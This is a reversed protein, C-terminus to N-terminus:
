IEKAINSVVKLQMKNCDDKSLMVYLLVRARSFMTYLIINQSSVNIQDNLDIAIVVKADLGKFSQITAFQISGHHTSGDVKRIVSNYKGNYSALVSKEMTVPSIITIDNMTIKNDFLGDLLFDFQNSFDSNEYPVFEVDDGEVLAKGSEINSSYKNFKAIQNTNRCNKTLKCKTPNNKCLEAMAKEFKNNFINQNPDYFVAWDGGYLGKSLLKDFIPLYRSSILDQGEDIVLVDYKECNRSSLYKFFMDPLTVSYYNADKSKSQDFPIYDSMLSHINKVNIKGSKISQSVHVALMKNYSLYLVRKGNNSRNLAYQMALITKGSGAPGSIIVKNNDEITDLVALQEETLRVLEKDVSDSVSGLTPVFHLDDRIAQKLQEIEDKTLKSNHRHNKDDWYKHCNEIFSDFSIGSSNDYKIDQIVSVGVYDFCIDTFVVGTAFSVQNTWSIMRSLSKRLAFLAGAAQDFPGENKTNREGYRNEFTWVGDNCEVRGGKVELCLIGRETIVIFDAESYSKREHEPLGVSHFAYGNEVTVSKLMNFVKKEANSKYDAGIVSPILKLM